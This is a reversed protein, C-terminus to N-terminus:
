KSSSLVDIRRPNAFGRGDQRLLFQPTVSGKRLINLAGNVDANVKIGDGSMYLGRHIRKGSFTSRTVTIHEPLPDLDIASAQSTYSENVLMLQIGHRKCQFTLEDKLRAFPFLAYLQNNQGLKSQQFHIGWGLAIKGIGNDICYKIIYAAAKRSYDLSRNHAKRSLSCLRKTDSSGHNAHLLKARYKCFGQLISKLRRGDIIFSDGETSICTAFNTVGLDIGLAKNTDLNHSEEKILYEIIMEYYRTHYMPRIIVKSIPKEQYNKPISLKITETSETAMLYVAGNRIYPNRIEIARLGSKRHPPIFNDLNKVQLTKDSKRLTYNDTSIYKKFDAIATLLIQYYYGGLKKYASTNEVLAKLSVYNLVKNSREYEKIIEHTAINYLNRSKECLQRLDSQEKESLRKLQVTASGYM